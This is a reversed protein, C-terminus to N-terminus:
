IQHARSHPRATNMISQCIFYFHQINNVVKKSDRYVKIYKKQNQILLNSLVTMAWWKSYSQVQGNKIGQNEHAHWGLHPAWVTKFLLNYEAEYWNM